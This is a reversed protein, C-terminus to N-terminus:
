FEVGIGFLLALDGSEATIAPQTEYDFDLSLNLYFLDTIEYRVGTSTKYIINDRGSLYKLISHNHFLEFDENFFDQRYRLTWIGASSTDSSIGIAEQIYGLGLQINLSIRPEDWFDLGIGASGVVRHDLERIPDREYQFAASFFWDDRFIWNYNYNLLDQEKTTVTNQEERILSFDGIHRNDGIRMTTEGHLRTNLSDTNGANVAASWDVLSDWDFREEPEELETLDALPVAITKSDVKIIQRGQEDAGLLQAVLKRGNALEIEFKRKAEIYAVAEVDVQFEDSYAPEITIEADWIRTIEGTIRDGNQFVLTDTALARATAFTALLLLLFKKGTAIDFMHLRLEANFAAINAWEPGERWGSNSGTPMQEIAATTHQAATIRFERM